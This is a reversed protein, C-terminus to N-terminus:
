PVGYKILKWLSFSNNIKVKKRRNTLYSNMFKLLSMNFGCTHIKTIILDHPICDFPKSLDAILAAYDGGQDLLKRFKELVVLLFHQVNFSRRFDTQQKSDKKHAPTINALKM